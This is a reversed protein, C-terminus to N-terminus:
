HFHPRGMDGLHRCHAMPGGGGTARSAHDLHRKCYFVYIKEGLAGTKLLCLRQQNYVKCDDLHRVVLCPNRGFCSSGSSWEGARSDYIQTKKNISGLCLKFGYFWQWVLFQNPIICWQLYLYSMGRTPISTSCRRCFHNIHTTATSWAKLKWHQIAMPSLTNTDGVQNGLQLM